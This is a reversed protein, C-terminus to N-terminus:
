VDGRRADSLALAQPVPHPKDLLGLDTGILTMAGRVPAGTRGDIVALRYARNPSTNLLRFPYRRAEVELHPWVVGNVMTFPGFFPLSRPITGPRPAGGALVR